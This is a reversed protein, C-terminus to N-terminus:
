YESSEFRVDRRIKIKVNTDKWTSLYPWILDSSGM